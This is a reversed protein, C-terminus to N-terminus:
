HAAMAISALRVLEGHLQPPAAVMPGHATTPRDYRPQSLDLNTLRGGAEQVLLDAAALDWDQADPKIAAGDLRGDAVRALRYALSAHFVSKFGAPAVIDAMDFLRKSVALTAGDLSTRESVKIPRGDRFAGAGREAHYIEGKAPAFLACAIPRGAEVVAIPITWDTAGAVFARTGDIPDVIFTREATLRSGDDETEESLYGYSPRAALLERHLMQDVAIDAETVPSNGVKTWVKANARFFSLALEAAAGVVEVLLDREARYPVAESV